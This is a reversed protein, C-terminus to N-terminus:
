RTEPDLLTSNTLPRDEKPACDHLFRGAEPDSSYITLDVSATRSLEAVQGLEAQLPSAGYVFRFKVQSPLNGHEDEAFISTVNLSANQFTTLIEGDWESRYIQVPNDDRRFLVADIYRINGYARSAEVSSNVLLNFENTYQAGSERFCQLQIDLYEGAGRDIWLTTDLYSGKAETFDDEDHWYTFQSADVAEGAANEGCATLLASLSAIALTQIARKM